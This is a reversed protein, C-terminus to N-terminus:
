KICVNNRLGAQSHHSYLRDVQTWITDECGLNRKRQEDGVTEVCGGYMEIWTVLPIDLKVNDFRTTVDDSMDGILEGM